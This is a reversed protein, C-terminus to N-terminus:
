HVHGGGGDGGIGALSSPAGRSSSPRAGAGVAAIALRAERVAAATTVVVERGGGVRVVAERLSGGGWRAATAPADGAAATSRVGWLRRSVRSGPTVVVAVNM